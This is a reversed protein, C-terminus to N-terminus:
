LSRLFTTDAAKHAAEQCRACVWRSGRAATTGPSWGHRYCDIAVKWEGRHLVEVLGTHMNFAVNGTIPAGRKDQRGM